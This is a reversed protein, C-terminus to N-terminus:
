VTMGGDVPNVTGTIFSSEDSALHLMQRAVDINDAYRGLPITSAFQEKAAEAQGPAFGEELSRMMRNDVPSPNVTNARIRHPAGEKAVEKMLGIVAHKSTTYASVNGTGMLGAVSSTIIMSGGGRKQLEPFAARVALYAGRVNVAIVQDWKELPYETLPAVVGETGANAVLVDLGGFRDVAMKVAALNDNESTVDCKVTAVHDPKGIADAATKLAGEDLDALVVRAGEEVFLRGAEAGIGGAGGTILAVKNELRQGM